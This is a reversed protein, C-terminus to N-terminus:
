AATANRGPATWARWAYYCLAGAGLMGVLWILMSISWYVVLAVANVPSFRTADDIATYALFLSVVVPVLALMQMATIGVLAPLYPHPDSMREVSRRTLAAGIRTGAVIYGLMWIVALVLLLMFGIPIGLISFFLLTALSLLILSVLFILLISQAPKSTMAAASGWLQRGGIGAFVVGAILALFTTGAWNALSLWAIFRAFDQSFEVGLDERTTGQVDAGPDIIITTENYVLDGTVVADPGLRLTGGIALVNGEIHGNITTTGSIVLVHGNVRGDIITNADIAGVFGVVESDAVTVSGSIQIRAGTSDNSQALVSAPLLAATVVIVILALTRPKVILEGTLSCWAVLWIHQALQESLATAITPRKRESTNCEPICQFPGFQEPTAFKIRM